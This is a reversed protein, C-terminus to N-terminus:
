SEGGRAGGGNRRGHRIWTPAPWTFAAFPVGSVVLVFANVYDFYHLGNDMMHQIHTVGRRTGVPSRRKDAKRQEHETMSM